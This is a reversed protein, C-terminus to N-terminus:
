QHNLLDKKLKKTYCKQGGQKEIFEKCAKAILQTKNIGEEECAKKIIKDLEDSIRLTFRVKKKSM